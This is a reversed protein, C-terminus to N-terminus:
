AKHTLSINPSESWRFNESHSFEKFPAQLILPDRETGSIVKELFFYPGLDDPISSWVMWPSLQSQLELICIFGLLFTFYKTKIIAYM